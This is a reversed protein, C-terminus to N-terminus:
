EPKRNKPDGNPVGLLAADQPSTASSQRLLSRSQRDKRTGCAGANEYILSALMAPCSRLSAFSGDGGPDGKKPVKRQRLLSLYEGLPSVIFWFTDCDGFSWQDGVVM